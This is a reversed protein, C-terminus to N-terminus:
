NFFLGAYLKRVRNLDALLSFHLSHFMKKSNKQQIRNTHIRFEKKVIEKHEFFYYKGILSVELVFLIKDSFM